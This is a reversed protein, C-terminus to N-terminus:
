KKGVLDPDVAIAATQGIFDCVAWAGLVIFIQAGLGLTSYNTPKIILYSLYAAVVFFIIYTVLAKKTKCRM